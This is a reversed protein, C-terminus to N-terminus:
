NGPCIPPESLTPLDALFLMLFNHIDNLTVTSEAQKVLIAGFCVPVQISLRPLGETVSPLEKNQQCWNVGGRLM